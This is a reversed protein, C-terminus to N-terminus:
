HKWEDKKRDTTYMHIVKNTIKDKELIETVNLLISLLLIGYWNEGSGSKSFKFGRTRDGEGLTPVATWSWCWSFFILPSAFLDFGSSMIPLDFALSVTLENARWVSSKGGSPPLFNLFRQILRDAIQTVNKKVIKWINYSTHKIRKKHHNWITMKGM